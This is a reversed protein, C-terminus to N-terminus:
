EGASQTKPTRNNRKPRDDDSKKRGNSSKLLKEIKNVSLLIPELQRKISAIEKELSEVSDAAQDIKDELTIVLRGIRAMDQQSALGTVDTLKKQSEKLSNIMTLYFDLQKQQADTYFESTIVYQMFENLNHELSNTYRDLLSWWENYMEDLNKTTM